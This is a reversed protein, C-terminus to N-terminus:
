GWGKRNKRERAITVYLAVLLGSSTLVPGGTPIVHLWLPTQAHVHATGRAIRTLFPLADTIDAESHKLAKTATSRVFGCGTGVVRHRLGTGPMATATM